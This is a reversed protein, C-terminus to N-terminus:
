FPIDIRAGAVHSPDDRDRILFSVLGADAVTITFAHTGADAVTFTYEVPAPGDTRSLVVTGTYGLAINSFQDYATVVLSFAVGPAVTGPDTFVLHDATAQYAGINNKGRRPVGRQDVTTAAPDGANLAPSGALVAMTQTPGGNDVLHGLVPDGVGVLNHNVGDTLGASGGTGILNYASAADANAGELDSPNGTTANSNGAVITNDLNLTGGNYVGAGKGGADNGYITDSNLIAAATSAIAGGDGTALNWALTSNGLYLTGRDLRMGGGNGGAINNDITSGALVVKGLSSAIGGGDAGASNGSVASSDLYLSGSDLDVGGGSSDASCNVIVSGRITVATSGAYVAGGLSASCGNFTCEGITLTAPQDPSRQSSSIAGGNFQATDSLFTSATVKLMGTNAIAGGDRASNGTFTSGNVTMTSLGGNFITGEVSTENNTNDRFECNAVVAQGSTSRIAGSTNAVFSSNSVVLAGDNYLNGGSNGQFLSDRVLVVGGENMIGGGAVGAQNNLFQCNSVSLTADLSVDVAGGRTPNQAGTLTLGSITVNAARPVEFAFQHGNADITLGSPGPGQITVNRLITIAPNEAALTITGRVTPDFQIADGDKARLIVLRLCGADTTSDTLSTVTLTSPVCRDELAELRPRFFTRHNNLSSNMFGEM